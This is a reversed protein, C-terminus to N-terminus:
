ALLAYLQLRALDEVRETDEKEIMRIMCNYYDVDNRLREKDDKVELQERMNFVEDIREDITKSRDFTIKEVLNRIGRPRIM